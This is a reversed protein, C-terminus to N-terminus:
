VIRFKWLDLRGRSSGSCQHITSWYRACARSFRLKGDAGLEAEEDRRGRSRISEVYFDPEEKRTVDVVPVNLAWAM